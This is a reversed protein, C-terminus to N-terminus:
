GSGRGHAHELLRTEKFSATIQGANLDEQM